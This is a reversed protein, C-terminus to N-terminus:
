DVPIYPSLRPRYITYYWLVLSLGLGVVSVLFTALVGASGMLPIVCATWLGGGLIPEFLLQKYSFSELVPTENKPDVCRLLLCGTATVGMGQGLQAIARECWHDTVMRPAIYFFCFLHWMIGSVMLILFPAINDWVAEVNMTAIAGVVLFDLSTGSIRSVLVSNIPQSTTTRSVAYQVLMGGFMAFPFLPFGSLFGYDQMTKSTNEIAVLAEKVLLGFFIAIAVAAIHLSFCDIIDQSVCVSGASPRQSLPIFFSDTVFGHTDHPMPPSSEPSAGVKFSDLQTSPPRRGTEDPDVDAKDRLWNKRIAMNILTMGIVVAGLLGVTASALGLSEGDEFDFDEMVEGLAAATGHGGEFGIPLIIGFFRNVGFVPELFFYGMGIGLVYQGWNVVLGYCFQPAACKWVHQVTPIETGLFLCAFFVNILFGALQEWGATWEDMLGPDTAEVIQLLVLGIFGAVISVPLYLRGLLRVNARLATAVVILISIASLSQLAITTSSKSM